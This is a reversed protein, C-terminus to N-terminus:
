GPRVTFSVTRVRIEGASFVFTDVGDDVHGRKAKAKWELYLVDEAFTTSLAWQAQPV